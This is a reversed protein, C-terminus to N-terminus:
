RARAVPSRGAAEDPGRSRHGGPLDAQAGVSGARARRLVVALESARSGVFVVADAAHLQAYLEQEWERGVAIGDDPDFDLFMSGYGWERLRDRLREVAAQDESSHSIFFAAM